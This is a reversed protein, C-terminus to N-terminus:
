RHATIRIWHGVKAAPNEPPYVDIAPEDRFGAEKLQEVMTELPWHYNIVKGHGSSDGCGIIEFPFGPVDYNKMDFRHEYEPDFARYRPHTVAFFAVGNERLLRRIADLNEVCAAHSPWNGWVAICTVANFTKPECAALSDTISVHARKIQNCTRRAENLMAQSIDYGTFHVAELEKPCSKFLLASGCGYDLVNGLPYRRHKDVLRQWIDPFVVRVRFVDLDNVYAAVLDKGAWLNAEVM